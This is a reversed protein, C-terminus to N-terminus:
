RRRRRALLGLVLALPLWGRGPARGSGAACTGHLEGDVSGADAGVAGDPDAPHPGADPEPARAGADEETVAGGDSASPPGADGEVAASCDSGRQSSVFEPCSGDSVLLSGDSPYRHEGDADRFVFYYPACASAPLDNASYSGRAPAGRELSLPHCADDIVVAALSPTGGAERYYTARFTYAGSPSQRPFHLGDPVRPLPTSGFRHEFDATVYEEYVGHGVARVDPSLINARHGNGRGRSDPRRTCETSDYPEHLWRYFAENVGGFVLTVANEGGYARVGFLRSVRDSARVSGELRGGVCACSPDGDCSGPLYRADIDAVVECPSDHQLDRLPDFGALKQSASHFRAARTLQHHFALPPVPAYCAADACEACGALDAAPDVRARNTLVM